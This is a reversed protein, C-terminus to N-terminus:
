ESHEKVLQLARIFNIRAENHNSQQVDSPLADSASSPLSPAPILALLPSQNLSASSRSKLFDPVKELLKRIEAMRPRLEPRKSLCSEALSACNKALRNEPWEHQPLPESSQMLRLIANENLGRLPVKDTIIFSMLQGFSFIDTATTAASIGMVVEPAAWRTTFGYIKEQGSCRKALGFDSLM